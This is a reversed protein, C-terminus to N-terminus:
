SKKGAIEVGVAKRNDFLIREVATDTLITLNTPVASAPLFAGSATTRRGNLASIQCVAM